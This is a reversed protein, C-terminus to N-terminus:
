CSTIYSVLGSPPINRNLWAVTALRSHTKSLFVLYTRIQLGAVKLLVALKSCPVMPRLAAAAAKSDTFSVPDDLLKCRSIPQGAIACHLLNNRAIWTATLLSVWM